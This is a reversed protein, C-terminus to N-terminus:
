HHIQNRLRNLAAALEISRVRVLDGSRGTTLRDLGRDGALLQDFAAL